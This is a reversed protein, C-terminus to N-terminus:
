VWSNQVAGEPWAEKRRQRARRARDRDKVDHITQSTRRGRPAALHLRMTATKRGKCGWHLRM